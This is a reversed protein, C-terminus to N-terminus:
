AHRRFEDAHSIGAGWETTPEIQPGRSRAWKRGRELRAEAQEAERACREAYAIEDLAPDSWHPHWVPRWNRRDTWDIETM